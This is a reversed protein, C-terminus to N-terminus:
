KGCSILPTRRFFRRWFVDLNVILSGLLIGLGVWFIEIAYFHLGGKGRGVACKV